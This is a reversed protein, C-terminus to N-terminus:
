VLHRTAIYVVLAAKPRWFTVKLLCFHYRRKTQSYSGRKGGIQEISSANTRQEEAIPLTEFIKVNIPQTGQPEGGFIEIMDRRKQAHHHFSDARGGAHQALDSM